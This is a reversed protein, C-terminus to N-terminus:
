TILVLIVDHIFGKEQAAGARELGQRPLFRTCLKVVIPMVLMNESPM